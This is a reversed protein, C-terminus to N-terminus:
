KKLIIKDFRQDFTNCLFAPDSIWIWSLVPHCPVLPWSDTLERLLLADSSLALCSFSVLKDNTILNQLAAM